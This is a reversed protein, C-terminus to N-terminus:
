PKAPPTSVADCSVRALPFAFSKSAGNRTGEISAHLKAPPEFRYIIRQPFPHELNEFVVETPGFKLM